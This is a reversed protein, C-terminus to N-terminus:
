NVRTEQRRRGTCSYIEHLNERKKNCVGYYNFQRTSIYNRHNEEKNHYFKKEILYCNEAVILSPQSRSEEELPGEDEKM